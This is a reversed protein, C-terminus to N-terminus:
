VPPFIWKPVHGPEPIFGCLEDHRVCAPADFRQSLSVDEM